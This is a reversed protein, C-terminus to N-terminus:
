VDIAVKENWQEPTLRGAADGQGQALFDKVISVNVQQLSTDPAMQNLAQRNRRDHHMSLARLLAPDVGRIRTVVTKETGDPYRTVEEIIRGNVRQENIEEILEQESLQWRAESLAIREELSLKNVPHLAAAQKILQSVRGQTVGLEEAIILQNAGKLHMEWALMKKRDAERVKSIAAAM